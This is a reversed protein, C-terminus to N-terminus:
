ATDEKKHKKQELIALVAELISRDTSGLSAIRARLDAGPLGNDGLLDMVSAELARCLPIIRDLSPLGQDHEWQWVAQKTVGVRGALQEQTLGCRKRAQAIRKGLKM